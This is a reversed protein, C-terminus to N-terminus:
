PRRGFPVPGDNRFPVMPLRAGNYMNVAPDMDWGYRVYVPHSIGPATLAIKNGQIHGEAWVFKKDEGAIAFGVVQGGLAFLGEDNNTFEVTLVNGDVKVRRAQPGSFPIKKHYVDHLAVLSLRRGVEKKNKPHIDEHDGIDITVALGTKPLTHATYTQAERLEAWGDEAPPNVHRTQWNALQVIFFPFDNKFRHRWDTILAPLLKRYQDPRGANSEGQYWIAGKVALPVLPEIMANSLVSAVNPNDAIPQPVPKLKKLEPGVKAKWTGALDFFTGDPLKLGFEQTTVSFGGAAGTDLVRVAVTNEGAKILNAPVTYNRDANYVSNSGVEVGNIYTVDADDIPGLHLKVPGTPMTPLTFTRRYWVIGDFDALGTMEFPQPMKESSWSSDDFEPKAFGLKEGPDNEQYWDALLKDYTEFDKTSQSKLADLTANFDKLPRLGADSTWAEAVTGGWCTQVLGIPVGVEKRLNRGFYFAVASFGNWNGPVFQMLNQPNATVWHGDSTSQPTLAIGHPVTFLRLNSDESSAIDPAATPINGMGFEMNSQGSCVWVDGVLLDKLEVHETGDVTLTYPGGMKPPQFKITWKGNSDVVGQSESSGITVKIKTGPHSWGWITNPRDRQLVMHDAFVPSLFPLPKSQNGLIAASALLIFM